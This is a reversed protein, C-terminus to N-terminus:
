HTSTPASTSRRRRCRTAAATAPCSASRCDTSSPSCSRTPLRRGLAITRGGLACEEARPHRLARQRRRHRARDQDHHTRGSDAISCNRGGEPAGGAGYLPTLPLQYDVWIAPVFFFLLALGTSGRAAAPRGPGLDQSARVRHDAHRDDTEMHRQKRSARWVNHIEFPDEYPPKVIFDGTGLGFLGLGLIRHRFLDDPLRRVVMGETNYAHGTAQGIRHEEIVQGPSFRWWTFHDVFVIVFLWIFMLLISFTLYFALNLHVRLLSLWGFATDVGPIKLAVWFLGGAILILMFSYVGRARVNTFVAVFLILAIFSIGLWPSPHFLVVKGPEAAWSAGGRCGACVDSGCLPVRLGLDAVLLAPQFASLHAARRAAAGCVVAPPRHPADTRGAKEGSKETVATDQPANLAM